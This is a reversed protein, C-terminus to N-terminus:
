VAAAFAEGDRRGLLYTENLLEPSTYDWKDIPIPQSPQVFVKGAERPLKHSPYRRTLMVLTRACDSPVAFDPVNDYLGGDFVPRDAWRLFPTVPPTCSSALVLAVLAERAAEPDRGHDAIVEQVRVLEPYFGMTAPWSPHVGDRFRRELMYAGFGLLLGPMWPLWRPPRALLVDIPPAAALRALAAADFAARLAARYMGLHPMVPEGRRLLREPYVNKDNAATLKAFLARASTTGGAHLMTAMASGASVGVIYRPALLEADREALADFFGVQWFCRCGGGAFVLADFVEFAM